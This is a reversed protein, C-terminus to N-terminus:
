FYNSEIYQLIFKSGSTKLNSSSYVKLYRDYYKIRNNLDNLFKLKEIKQNKFIDIKKLGIREAYLDSKYKKGGIFESKRYGSDKVFETAQAGRVAKGRQPKIAAQHRQRRTQRDSPM